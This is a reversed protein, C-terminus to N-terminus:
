ACWSTLKGRHLSVLHFGVTGPVTPVHKICAGRNGAGAGIKCQVGHHKLFQGALLDFLNTALQKARVFFASSDKEEPITAARREGRMERTIESLTGHSTSILPLTELYFGTGTRRRGVVVISSASSHIV